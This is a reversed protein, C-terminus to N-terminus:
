YTTMAESSGRLQVAYDIDEGAALWMGEKVWLLMGKKFGEKLPKSKFM